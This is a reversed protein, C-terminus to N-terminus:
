WLPNSGNVHVYLRNLDAVSLKGNPVTDACSLVYSDTIPNAGSIDTYIRNLDMVSIKGDNNVDGYACLSWTGLGKNKEGISVEVIRPAYNSTKYIVMKYTGVPVDVFTFVQEYSGNEGEKVAGGRGEYLAHQPVGLSVDALIDADSTKEDYLLYGAELESEWSSIVGWADDGGLDERWDITGGYDQMVKGTWTGNGTPYYATATVDKFVNDAFRPADGRFTITKLQICNYFARFEVSSVSAPLDIEGLSECYGFANSGLKEVGDPLIIGALNECGFFASGGIEKVTKSM